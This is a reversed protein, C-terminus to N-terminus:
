FIFMKLIQNKKIFFLNIKKKLLHKVLYSGIFGNGGTIAVNLM